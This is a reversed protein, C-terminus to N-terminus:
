HSAKFSPDIRAIYTRVYTDIVSLFTLKREHARLHCALYLNHESKMSSEVTTMRSRQCRLEVHGIWMCLACQCPAARPMMRMCLGLLLATFVTSGSEIFHPSRVFM